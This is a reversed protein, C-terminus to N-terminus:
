SSKTIVGRLCGEPRTNLTKVFINKLMERKDLCMLAVLNGPSRVRQPPAPSVRATVGVTVRLMLFQRGTGGTSGGDGRADRAARLQFASCVFVNKCSQPKM